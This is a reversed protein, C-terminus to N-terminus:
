QQINIVYLSNDESSMVSKSNEKSFQLSNYLKSKQHHTKDGPCVKRKDAIAEDTDGYGGNGEKGPLKPLHIQSGRCPTHTKYHEDFIDFSRRKSRAGNLIYNYPIGM